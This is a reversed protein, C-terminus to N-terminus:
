ELQQRAWDQIDRVSKIHGQNIAVRLGKFFVEKEPPLLGNITHMIEEDQKLGFLRLAYKAAESPTRIAGRDRAKEVGLIIEKYLDESESFGLELLDRGKLLTQNATTFGGNRRISDGLPGLRMQLIEEHNAGGRGLIDAECLKQFLEVNRPHIARVLQRVENDLIDPRSHKKHLNFELPKMHNAVMRRIDHKTNGNLELRSLVVKSIEESAREHGPFLVSLRGSRETAKATVAKGTDHLLAALAITLRERNPLGRSIRAAVDVVGLTHEFVSGEPHHVPCQEVQKLCAIEPLIIQLMGMEDALRLAKSPPEVGCLMKELEQTLNIKPLHEFSGLAVMEKLLAKSKPEIVLDYQAAIRCARLLMRPNISDATHTPVLRLVGDRLDKGGDFLDTISGDVPDIYIANCTFDRRSAAQELKMTPDSEYTGLEGPSDRHCRAPINIDIYGHQGFTLKFPTIGQHKPAILRDGFLETLIKSLQQHSLGFVEIDIDDSPKSLLRNRCWGGVIFARPAASGTDVSYSAIAEGFSIAETYLFGTALEAHALSNRPAPITSPEPSCKHASPLTPM